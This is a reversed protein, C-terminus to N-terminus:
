RQTFAITMKIFKNTNFLSNRVNLWEVFFLLNLSNTLAIIESEVIIFIILILEVLPNRILKISSCVQLEYEMVLEGRIMLKVVATYTKRFTFSSSNSNLNCCKMKLSCREDFVRPLSRFAM